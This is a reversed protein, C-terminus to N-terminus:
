DKNESLLNKNVSINSLDFLNYGNMSIKSKVKVGDIGYEDRLTKVFKEALTKAVFDKYKWHISIEGNSKIRFGNKVCAEELIPKLLSMFSKVREEKLRRSNYSYIRSYENKYYKKEEPTATKPDYYKGYFAHFSQLADNRAIEGIKEM